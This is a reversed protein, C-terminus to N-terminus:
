QGVIYFILQIIKQTFYNPYLSLETSKIVVYTFLTTAFGLVLYVVKEYVRLNTSQLFVAILQLSVENVEIKAYQQM